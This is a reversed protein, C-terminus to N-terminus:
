LKTPFCRAPKKAKSRKAASAGQSFLRHDLAGFRGIADFAYRNRWVSQRRHHQALGFGTVAGFFLQRAIALGEVPYEGASEGQGDLGFHNQMKVGQRLAPKGAICALPLLSVVLDDLNKGVPLPRNAKLGRGGPGRGPGNLLKAAVVLLGAVIHAQRRQQGYGCKNEIEQANV